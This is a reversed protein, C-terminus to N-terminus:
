PFCRVETHMYHALANGEYRALGAEAADLEDYPEEEAMRVFQRWFPIADQSVTLRLVYRGTICFGNSVRM